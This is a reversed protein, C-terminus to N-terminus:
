LFGGDKRSGQWIQQDVAGCTNSDAHGSVDRRMVQDFYDVGESMHEIVPVLNVINRHVSQHFKDLTWIKRCASDDEAPQTFVTQCMSVASAATTNRHLRTGTYLGHIAATLADDDSFKGVHGVLSGQNLTDSVQHTRSFKITDGVQSVFAVALSHPNYNLERFVGIRIFNEGIQILASGHLPRKPDDHQRQHVTFRPQEAELLGELDIQFM